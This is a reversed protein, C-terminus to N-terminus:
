EEFIFRNNIYYLGESKYYVTDRMHKILIDDVEIKQNTTYTNKMTFIIREHPYSPKYNMEFLGWGDPSIYKLGGRVDCNIISIEKDNNFFHMEISTRPILDINMGNMWLSLTIAETDTFLITDLIINKKRAQFRLFTGKRKAEPFTNGFSKYLFTSSSDSVFFQNSVNSVKKM